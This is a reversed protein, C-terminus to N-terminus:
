VSVSSATLDSGTVAKKSEERSLVWRDLVADRFILNLTVVGHAPATAIASKIDDIIASIENRLM